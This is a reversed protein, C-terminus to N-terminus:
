RPQQNARFRAPSLGRARRFVAGFHDASGYGCAQAVRVVPLDSNLLLQEARALRLQRLADKFAMGAQTAALRSLHNPHIGLARAVTARDIGDGLHDGVYALAQQWTSAAGSVRDSRVLADLEQALVAILAAFLPRLAHGGAPDKALVGLTSAIIMGAASLPRETHWAALERGDAEPNRPNRMRILRIRDPYLTAGIIEGPRDWPEVSWAGSPWFAADGRSLVSDVLGSCTTGRIRFSGGVVVHLRPADALRFVGEGAAALGGGPVGVFMRGTMRVVAVLRVVRAAESPTM